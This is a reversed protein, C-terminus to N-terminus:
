SLSCNDCSPSSEGFLAAQQARFTKPASMALRGIKEISLAIRQAQTDAIVDRSSGYYYAYATGEREDQRFTTLNDSNVTSPDPIFNGYLQSPKVAILRDLHWKAFPFCSYSKDPSAGPDGAKMVHFLSRLREDPIQTGSDLDDINFRRPNSQTYDTVRYFDSLIRNFALIRFPNFKWDAGYASSFNTIWTNDQGSAVNHGNDLVGKGQKPGYVWPRNYHFLIIITIFPYISWFM